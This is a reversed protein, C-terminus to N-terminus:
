PNFVCSTAPDQQACRGDHWSGPVRAFPGHLRALTETDYTLEGASGQAGQHTVLAGHLTGGQWTANGAYFFGHASATGTRQLRRVVVVALPEAATGVSDGPWGAGDLQLDGDILFARYGRAHAARLAVACAAADCGEIRLTTPASGFHELTSGVVAGFYRDGLADASALRSLTADRRILAEAPPSGSLTTWTVTPALSLEGAAHIAYGLTRADTNVIGFSGALAVDGGATLAAVPPSRLLPIRKLLVQLTAVADGRLVAGPVCSAALDTCGRSTVRLSQPDGAVPDFEVTFSPADAPLGVPNGSAQCSCALGDTGLSCGPRLAAAPVLAGDPGPAAYRALFSGPAAVAPRCAADIRRPDNLMALAWELGAEAAEFAQTSRYQNTSSRQEFRLTRQSFFTVLTMAFLLVLSVGLAVTGRQGAPLTSQM